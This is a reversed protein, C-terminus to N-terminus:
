LDRWDRRAVSMQLNVVDKLQALKESRIVAAVKSAPGESVIAQSLIKGNMKANFIVARLINALTEAHEKGVIHLLSAIGSPIDSAFGTCITLFGNSAARLMAQASESDRIEGVFLILDTKAPQSRLAGRMAEVWDGNQVETQLCFGKGHHGHLNYEAPEEITYAFGGYKKLRSVVTASATTTKGAGPSGCVYILGGNRWREDMLANVVNEPLPSPLTELAPPASDLRRFSYWIANDVCNPNCRGRYLRDDILVRIDRKDRNEWAKKGLANVEIKLDPRSAASVPGPFVLSREIDVRGGHEIRVHIDTYDM